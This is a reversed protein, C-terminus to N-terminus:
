EKEEIDGQKKLFKYITLLANFDAAKLEPSLNEIDALIEHVSIDPIDKKLENYVSIISKIIDETSTKPFLKYISSISNVYDDLSYRFSDMTFLKGAYNNKDVASYACLYILIFSFICGAIALAKNGRLCNKSRRRRFMFGFM